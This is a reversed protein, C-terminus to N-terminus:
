YNLTGVNREPFLFRLVQTPISGVCECRRHTARGISSGLGQSCTGKLERFSFRPVQICTSCCHIISSNPRIALADIASLWLSLMTVALPTGYSFTVKQHLPCWSSASTYREEGGVQEWPSPLEIAHYLLVDSIHTHPNSGGWELGSIKKGPFFIKPSTYM